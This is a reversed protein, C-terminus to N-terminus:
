LFSAREEKVGAAGMQVFVPVVGAVGCLAVFWGAGGGALAVGFAFGLFSMVFVAIGTM